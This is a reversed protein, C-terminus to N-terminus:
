GELETHLIIDFKGTQENGCEVSADSCCENNRFFFVFVKQLVVYKVRQKCGGVSDSEAAQKWKPRTCKGKGPCATLPVDRGKTVDCLM